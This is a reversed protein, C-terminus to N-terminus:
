GGYITLSKLRGACGSDLLRLVPIKMEPNQFLEGPIHLIWSAAFELLAAFAFRQENRGQKRFCFVFGCLFLISGATLAALWVAKEAAMDHLFLVIDNM